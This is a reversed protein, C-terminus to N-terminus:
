GAFRTAREPRSAILMGGRGQPPIPLRAPNLIRHRSAHRNSDSRPCWEDIKTCKAFESFPYHMIYELKKGRLQLNSFIFNLIERRQTNDSGRFAELSGHALTILAKLRNSFQDDTQDHALLLKDIEYQRNKLSRKKTEFDETAITGEILLDMLKDLKIEIETHEKKLSATQAKHFEKRSGHTKEVYGMLESM